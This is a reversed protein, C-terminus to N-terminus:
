KSQNGLRTCQANGYQGRSLLAPETERLEYGYAIFSVHAAVIQEQRPLTVVACLYDRQVELGEAVWALEGPDGAAHRAGLGDERDLGAPRGGALASAARVGSGGGRRVGNDIREERM